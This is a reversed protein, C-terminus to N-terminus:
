PTRIEAGEGGRATEGIEAGNRGARYCAPLLGALGRRSLPSPLIYSTLPVAARGGRPVQETLRVVVHRLAAAQRGRKRGEHQSALECRALRRHDVADVIVTLPDPRHTLFIVVRCRRFTAVVGDNERWTFWVLLPRFWPPASM